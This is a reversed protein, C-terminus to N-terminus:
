LLWALYRGTWRYGITTYKALVLIFGHQYLHLKPIMRRNGSLEYYIQMNPWSVAFTEWSFTHESKTCNHISTVKNHMNNPLLTSAQIYSFPKTETFRCAQTTLFKSFTWLINERKAPYLKALRNQISAPLLIDDKYIPLFNLKHLM